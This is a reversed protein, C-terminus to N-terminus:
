AGKRESLLGHAGLIRTGVAEGSWYAGTVIGVAIFPAIHEGVLWIGRELMGARLVLIDQDLLAVPDHPTRSEVRKFNTYSGKGALEDNQWNSCLPACPQCEPNAQLYNPLHSYYPQFFGAIAKLYASTNPSLGQLLSTVYAACPGHISFLLTPQALEGFNVSSSLPVM